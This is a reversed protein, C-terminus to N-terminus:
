AIGGIHDPTMNAFLYFGNQGSPLIYDVSQVNADIDAYDSTHVLYRKVKGSVESKFYGMKETLKTCTFAGDGDSFLCYTKGVEFKYSTKGM